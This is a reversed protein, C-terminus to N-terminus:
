YWGGYTYSANSGCSNCTNNCTQCTNNCTSCTNTSVYTAQSGCVDDTCCGALLGVSGIIFLSILFHKM